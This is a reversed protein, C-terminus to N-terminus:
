RGKRADGGDESGPGREVWPAAQRGPTEKPDRGAGGQGGGGVCGAARGRPDPRGEERPRQHHQARAAPAQFDRPVARTRRPLRSSAAAGARKDGEGSRGPRRLLPTTEVDPIGRSATCMMGGPTLPAHLLDLWRTPPHAGSAGHVRPHRAPRGDQRIDPILHLSGQHPRSAPPSPVSQLGVQGARPGTVHEHDCVRAGQQHRACVHGGRAGRGPATPLATDAPGMPSM